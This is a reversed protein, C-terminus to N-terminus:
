GSTEGKGKYEEAVIMTSTLYVSPIVRLKETLFADLKPLENVRVKIIVDYEGYLENVEVVEEFEAIRKCVERESGSELTVLVYAVLAM